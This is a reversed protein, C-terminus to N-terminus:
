VARMSIHHGMRALTFTAGFSAPLGNAWGYGARVPNIFPAWAGAHTASGFFGMSDANATTQLTITNQPLSVLYYMGAPLTENITIEQVGIADILVSGADLVLDGPKKDSGADYIGILSTDGPTASAVTINIGIRDYTASQFVFFPSAELRNANSNATAGAGSFISGNFYRGSVPITSVVGRYAPHDDADLAGLNAHPLTGSLDNIDMSASVDSLKLFELGDEATKVSVLNNASGSYSQPVDRLHKFLDITRQYFGM